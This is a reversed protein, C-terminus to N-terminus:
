ATSMKFALSLKSNAAKWMTTPFSSLLLPDSLTLGSSAGEKRSTAVPRRAPRLWSHAVVVGGAALVILLSIAGITMAVYHAPTREDPSHITIM